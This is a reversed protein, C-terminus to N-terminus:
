QLALGLAHVSGRLLSVQDATGPLRDPAELDVLGAAPRGLGHIKWAGGEKVLAVVLPVGRGDEAHAIGHLEGTGALDVSRSTWSAERVGALGNRALYERLEEESTSARFDASAFAEFREAGTGALFGDATRVLESTWFFFLGVLVGFVAVLAGAAILVFQLIRRM